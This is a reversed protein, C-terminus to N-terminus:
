SIGHGSHGGEEFAEQLLDPLGTSAPDPGAGLVIALPAVSSHTDIPSNNPRMPNGVLKEESLDGGSFEDKVVAVVSQAHIGAVEVDSGLNIVHGVHDSSFALVLLVTFIM